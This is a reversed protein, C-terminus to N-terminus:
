GRDCLLRSSLLDAMKQKKSPALVVRWIPAWEATKWGHKAEGVTRERFDPTFAGLYAILGSCVIVDGSCRVARRPPTPVLSAYALNFDHRIMIPWTIDSLPVCHINEAINDILFLPVGTGCKPIQMQRRLTQCITAFWLKRPSTLYLISLNSGLSIQQRTLIWHISFQIWKQGDQTSLDHRTKKEVLCISTLTINGITYFLVHRSYFMNKRYERVTEQQEWDVERWPKEAAWAALWIWMTLQWTRCHICCSIHITAGYSSLVLILIGLCVISEFLCPCGKTTIYPSM